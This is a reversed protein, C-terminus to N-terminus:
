KRKEIRLGVNMIGQLPDERMLQKIRLQYQGPQRLSVGNALLEAQISIRHEYIDDMGVGLWGHENTGLKKETKITVTKGTPDIVTLELWINNYHYADRHRVVLSLDYFAATDRITFLYQPVFSSKWAQQPIIITREFLNLPQCGILSVGILLFSLVKKYAALSM